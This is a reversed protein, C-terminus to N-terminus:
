VATSCGRWVPISVRWSSRSWAGGVSVRDPEILRSGPAGIVSQGDVAGARCAPGFWARLQRERPRVVRVVPSRRATACGLCERKRPATCNPARGCVAGLARSGRGRGSSLQRIVGGRTGGDAPGCPAGDRTADSGSPPRVLPAPHASPSPRRHGRYEHRQHHRRRRRAGCRVWRVRALDLARVPEPRRVEVLVVPVRVRVAPEVRSQTACGRGTPVTLATTSNTSKSSACALLTM